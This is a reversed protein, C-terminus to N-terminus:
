IYLQHEHLIDNILLNFSFFRCITDPLFGDECICLRTEIDCVGRGCGLGGETKNVCGLITM